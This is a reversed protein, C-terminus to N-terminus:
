EQVITQIIVEIPQTTDIGVVHHKPTYIHRVQRDDFSFVNQILEHSSPNIYGEEESEVLMMRIEEENHANEELNPEVGVLRATLASTKHLLWIFPSFLRYFWRLLRATKLSTGLPNGIAIYKPLQEGIIIHFM